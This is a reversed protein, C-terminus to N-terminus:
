TRAIAAHYRREADKKVQRLLAWRIVIIGPSLLAWYRRFKARSHSDTTLVRTETRARSWNLGAPDARLTWAIKAYGPERFQRFDDAPIARFVVNAEWPRTVAGMVVEQGPIESLVGWGLSKMHALFG